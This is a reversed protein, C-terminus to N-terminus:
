EEGGSSARARGRRRFRKPVFGTRQYERVEQASMDDIHEHLFFNYPPLPPKGEDDYYAPYLTMKGKDVVAKGGKNEYWQQFARNQMAEAFCSFHAGGWDLGDPRVESHRGEKGPVSCHPPDGCTHDEIPLGYWEVVRFCPRYEVRSKTGDWRPPKRTGFRGWLRRLGPFSPQIVIDLPGTQEEEPM